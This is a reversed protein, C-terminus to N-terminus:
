KVPCRKAIQALRKRLRGHRDIAAMSSSRSRRLTCHCYCRCTPDSHSCFTLRCINWSISLALMDVFGESGAQVFCGFKVVVVPQVFTHLFFVAGKESTASYCSVVTDTGENHQSRAKSVLRSPSGFAQRMSAYDMHRINLSQCISPLSRSISPYMCSIRYDNSSTSATKFSVFGLSSSESSTWISLTV